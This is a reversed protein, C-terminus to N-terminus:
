LPMTSQPADPTLLQIPVTKPRGPKGPRTRLGFRRELEEVFQTDGLPYGSHTAERLRQLNAEEELGKALCQNWRAADYRTRWRLLDLHTAPALGLRARASSWRWEAASSVLGARVPNQEVYLLATWFHNEDLVTSYFRAQWLHGSQRLRVHLTRAYDSHIRQLASSLGKADHPTVILHVHNSMLCYAELAVGYHPLFESLMALYLKRDEERYFVKEHHNGRQTVHHPYGPAIVRNRRPM